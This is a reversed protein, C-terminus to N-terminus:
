NKFRYSYLLGVASNLEFVPNSGYITSIADQIEGRFRASLQFPEDFYFSQFYDDDATVPPYRNTMDNFIQTTTVTSDVYLEEYRTNYVMIKDIFLDANGSWVINFDFNSNEVIQIPNSEFWKYSTICDYGLNDATVDQAFLTPPSDPEVESHLLDRRPEENYIPRPQGVISTANLTFIRSGGSPAQGRRLYIRIKIVDDIPFQTWPLQAWMISRGGVHNLSLRAMRVKIEPSIIPDSGNVGTIELGAPKTGQKMVWYSSKNWQSIPKAFGFNDAESITEVTDGGLEMMYEFEKHGLANMYRSPLFNLPPNLGPDHKWAFGM